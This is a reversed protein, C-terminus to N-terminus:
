IRINQRVCTLYYQIIIHSETAINDNSLIAHICLPDSPIFILISTWVNNKPKSHKTLYKTDCVNYNSRGKSIHGVLTLNSPTHEFLDLFLESWPIQKLFIPKPIKFILVNELSFIQYTQLTM